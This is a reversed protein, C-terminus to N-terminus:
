SGFRFSSLMAEIPLTKMTPVLRDACASRSSGGDNAQYDTAESALRVMTSELLVYAEWHCAASGYDVCQFATRNGVPFTAWRDCAQRLFAEDYCPAMKNRCDMVLVSLIPFGKDEALVRVARLLGEIHFDAVAPESLQLNPPHRFSFDSVGDRYTKWDTPIRHGSTEPTVVTALQLLGILIFPKM